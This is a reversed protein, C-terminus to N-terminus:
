PTRGWVVVDSGICAWVEGDVAVLAGVYEYNAPLPLTQRLDLDALGWVRVQSQRGEEDFISRSSSVLRSGSVALGFPYMGTEREYAEVTQLLEWTGVAWARITGDDSSSLLRDGHVVLAHVIGLHGVLTAELELTGANWIVIRGDQLGGALKDPWVALSWVCDDGVDHGGVHGDLVDHTWEAGRAMKWVKIAMSYHASVLRSGCVALASFSSDEDEQAEIVQTCETTEVDWVRLKGSRHGSILDKDWGVLAEVVDPDGDSSLVHQPHDTKQHWVLIEGDLSASCVKGDYEAMARVQDHHATLWVEGGERYDEWWVGLGVRDVLAKPGLLMCEFVEGKRHAAKARLAEVVVGAMWAGCDGDVMGAAHSRLYEERMLPFRIKEAVCIWERGNDAGALWAVVAEWVAEENSAVLRDDDMLRMLDQGEIRMYGATRAFEEFRAAAMRQAAAELRPMGHRRGWVLLDGCMDLNLQGMLGEELVSTVETMQFQDAVSALQEVEGLELEQCDKRGCWVDMAKVFPRQNVQKLEMIKSKSESFSGCLMKHLVPSALCM